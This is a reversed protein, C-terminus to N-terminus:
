LHLKRATFRGTCYVGGGRANESGGRATATNGSVLVSQLELDTTAYIGGGFANANGVTFCNGSRIDNMDNDVIESGIITLPATTYIGGGKLVRAMTGTTM